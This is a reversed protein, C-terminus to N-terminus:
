KQFVSLVPLAKNEFDFLAQNEWSSANKSEKGRYAVLEGGWYCFGIGKPTKQAIDKIKLLFDKQGQPSAAYDPLIQDTSGVINNTWDNWSLTFPYATEAILIKKQYKESLNKLTNELNNLNKGHWIPYYSLGIIDFDIDKLQEFFWESAQLGAFHLIIQTKPNTKRVASCAIQLLNKFKEITQISGNPFLFGGNIENGIQIFDPNLEKVIKETYNGVSDKLLEFPLNEWIKPTKQQSPDAWTDSYHVTLWTQLNKSRVKQLMKQVNEWDAGLNETPNKWLKLRVANCGNEKLIDLLEKQQNNKDFFLVNEQELIPLFSLDAARLFDNNSNAPLVEKKQCFCLFYLGIFLIKKMFIPYIQSM